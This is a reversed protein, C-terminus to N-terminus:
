LQDHGLSHTASHCFSIKSSIRSYNKRFPAMNLIGLSSVMSRIHLFSQGDSVENLLSTRTLDPEKQRGAMNEIVQINMQPQSMSLYSNILCIRQCRIYGPLESNQIERQLM